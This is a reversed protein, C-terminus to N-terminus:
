TRPGSLNAITTPRRDDEVASSGRRRPTPPRARIGSRHREEGPEPRVVAGVPAEEDGAEDAGDHRRDERDERGGDDALREVGDGDVDLLVACACALGLFLFSLIFIGEIGVRGALVMTLAAGTLGGASGGAAIFGFVRKAQHEDFVDTMYSWFVAVTFLNAVSLWIYFVPAMYDRWAPVEWAFLFALICALFFGYVVPVFVRRPFRSILRGYLPQALLMCLFTGTYLWNYHEPGFRVGMAERVSRLMYYSTLLGFFYLFAIALAGREQREIAFLARLQM